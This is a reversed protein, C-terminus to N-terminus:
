WFGDRASGPARGVDGRRHAHRACDGNAASRRRIAAIDRLTEVRPARMAPQLRKAPRIPGRRSTRTAGRLRVAARARARGPSPAPRPPTSDDVTCAPLAHPAAGALTIGGTHNPVLGAGTLGREACGRRIAALGRRGGLSRRVIYRARRLALRSTMPTFDPWRTVTSAKCGPHELAEPPGGPQAWVGDGCQTSRCGAIISRADPVDGADRTRGGAGIARSAM